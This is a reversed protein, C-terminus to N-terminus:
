PDLSSLRAQELAVRLREFLREFVVTPAHVVVRGELLTDVMLLGLEGAIEADLDTAEFRITTPETM